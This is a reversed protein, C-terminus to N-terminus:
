FVDGRTRTVEIGNAGILIVIVLCAGGGGIDLVGGSTTRNRNVCTDRARDSALPLLYRRYFSSMQEAQVERSGWRCVVCINRRPFVLLNYRVGESKLTATTPQLLPIILTLLKSFTCGLPQSGVKGM